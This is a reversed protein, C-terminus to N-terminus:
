GPMGRCGRFVCSTLDVNGWDTKGGLADLGVDTSTFRCHSLVADNFAAGRLDCYEFVVNKLEAGFWLTWYLDCRRFTVDQLKVHLFMGGEAIAGIFTEGIVELDSNDASNRLILMSPM